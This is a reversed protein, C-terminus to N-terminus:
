WPIEAHGGPSRAARGGLILQREAVNVQRMEEPHNRFWPWFGACWIVGLGAALVLPARWNGMLVILWVLLSPAVAGGIRSSMWILGQASGRETVPMWDAMMRSLAPFTGAQFMGFLFRLVLLFAFSWAVSNPLLVVLALCGTMASG